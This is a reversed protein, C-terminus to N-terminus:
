FLYDYLDIKKNGCMIYFEKVQFYNNNSACGMNIDIGSLIVIPIDTQIKPISRECAKYMINALAAMNEQENNGLLYLHEKVINKIYNQQYDGPVITTDKYAGVVAGCCSNIKDPQGRREIYGLKGEITIGIHPCIILFLNGGTPVHSLGAQFGTEGTFYIGSLGGGLFSLGFKPLFTLELNNELEDACSSISLLTNKKTIGHNKLIKRTRRELQKHTLSNPFYKKLSEM